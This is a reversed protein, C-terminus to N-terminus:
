GGGEAPADNLQPLCGTVEAMLQDLEALSAPLDAM